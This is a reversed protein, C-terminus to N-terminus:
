VEFHASVAVSQSFRIVLSFNKVSVSVLDKKHIAGLKACCDKVHCLSQVM